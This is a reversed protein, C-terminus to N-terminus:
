DMILSCPKVQDFQANTINREEIEESHEIFYVIQRLVCKHQMQDRLYVFMCVAETGQSEDRSLLFHLLKDSWLILGSKGSEKRYVGM